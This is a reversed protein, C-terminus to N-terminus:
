GGFIRGMLGTKKGSPQAAAQPAPVTVRKEVGDTSVTSAGHRVLDAWAAPSMRCNKVDPPLPANTLKDLGRSVQERRVDVLNDRGDVLTVTYDVLGGRMHAVDGVRPDDAVRDMFNVVVEIKKETEIM